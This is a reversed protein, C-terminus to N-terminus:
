RTFTAVGDHKEIYDVVKKEVKDMFKEATTYDAATLEIRYRPSALLQFTMEIQSDKPIRLKKAGEFAKKIIEVGNPEYSMVEFEGVICVTQIVVNSEVLMELTELWEDDIEEVFELDMIADIGQEKIDEFAAWIDGGYVEDLTYGMKDYVEDLEVGVKEGLVRLLGEAKNARKWQQVKIKKEQGSVRRKSLDIHGKRKDVKLVKCVLKQGLKIYDRINKIWHNAIESIHMYALANNRISEDVPFRNASGGELGRYDDLLLYVHTPNVEVVTCMVLEGIEPLRQKKIVM